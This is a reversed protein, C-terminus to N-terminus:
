FDFLEKLERNEISPSKPCNKIEISDDINMIWTNGNKTIEGKYCLYSEREPNKDPPFSTYIYVKNEDDSWSQFQITFYSYDKWKLDNMKGTEVFKDDVKELIQWGSFENAESFNVVAIKNGSRSFFPFHEIPLKQGDATIFSFGWGEYFQIFLLLGLPNERKEIVYYSGKSSYSDTDGKLRHTVLNPTIIELDLGTRSVKFGSLNSQTVTTERALVKKLFESTEIPQIGQNVQSDNNSNIRNHPSIISPTYKYILIGITFVAFVLILKKM